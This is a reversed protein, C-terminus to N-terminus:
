KVGVAQLGKSVQEAKFIFTVLQEDVSAIALEDDIIDGAYYTKGNIIAAQAEPSWAIGSIAISMEDFEQRTQARRRLDLARLMLDGLVAAQAAGPEEISLILKEIEDAHQLVRKYENRELLKEMSNLIPEAQTTIIYVQSKQFTDYLHSQLREVHLRYGENAFRKPQIQMLEKYNRVVNAHDNQAAFQSVQQALQQARLFNEEQQEVTYFGGPTPRSPTEGAKLPTLAPRFPDRRERRAFTHKELRLALSQPVSIDKDAITIAPMSAPAAPQEDAAFAFGCILAFMSGTLLMRRM